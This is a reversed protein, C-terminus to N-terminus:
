VLARASKLASDQDYSDDLVVKHKVNRFEEFLSMINTIPKWNAKKLLPHIIAGSSSVLPSEIIPMVVWMLPPEFPYQPGFQVTIIVGDVNFQYRDDQINKPDYVASKKIDSAIRMMTRTSLKEAIKVDNEHMKGYVTELETSLHTLDTGRPVIILYRLLLLKPDPVVYINLAKEYTKKEGAIQFVAIVMDSDPISYSAKKSIKGLVGRSYFSNVVLNDSLYVGQGYVAGTTMLKTGSCNVIGNRIISHWNEIASGHFLYCFKPSSNMFAAEKDSDHKVKFQQYHHIKGIKWDSYVTQINKTVIVFKLFEYLRPSTPYLELLGTIISSDTDCKSILEIIEDIITNRLTNELLTYDRNANCQEGLVDDKYMEVISVTSRFSWPFPNFIWDRRTSFATAYSVKFLFAVEHPNEAFAKTLGNDYPQLCYQRKCIINDCIYIISDVPCSTVSAPSTFCYNCKYSEM